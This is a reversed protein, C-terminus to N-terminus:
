RCVDFLISFPERGMRRAWLKLLEDAYNSRCLDIWGMREIGGVEVRVLIRPQESGEPRLREVVAPTSRSLIIEVEQGAPQRFLVVPTGSALDEVPPPYSEPLTLSDYNTQSAAVWGEASLAGDTKWTVALWNIQDSGPQLPLRRIQLATDAGLAALSQSDRRPEAFIEAMSGPRVKIILTSEIEGLLQELSLHEQAAVQDTVVSLSLDDLLRGASDLVQITTSGSRPPESAGVALAITVTFATSNRAPIMLGADQPVPDIATAWGADGTLNLKVSTAEGGRNELGIRFSAPQDQTVRRIGAEELLRLRIYAQALTPTSSLTGGMTTATPPASIGCAVLLVVGVGVGVWLRWTNQRGWFRRM